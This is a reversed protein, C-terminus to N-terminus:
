KAGGCGPYKMINKCIRGGPRNAEQWYGGSTCFPKNRDWQVDIIQYAACSFQLAVPVSKQISGSKYNGGCYQPSRGSRLRQQGELQFFGVGPPNPMARSNNYANPDCSAEDQAKTAMFAVIFHQKQEESFSRFNPCALTWLRPQMMLTLANHGNANVSQASQLFSRGWEGFSGDDRIFNKCAPSWSGHPSPINRLSVPVRSAARAVQQLNKQNVSSVGGRLADCESKKIAGMSILTEEGVYYSIGNISVPFQLKRNSLGPTGLTVRAPQRIRMTARDQARVINTNPPLEVRRGTLSDAYLHQSLTVVVVIILLRILTHM